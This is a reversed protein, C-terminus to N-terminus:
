EPKRGALVAFRYAKFYCDAREFGAERLWDLQAEVTAPRDHKMREQAASLADESVGAARVQALWTEHNFADAAADAGAVQELNVFMGGPALAEFAARCLRAKDADDLHHISLASVIADFPSDPLSAAYDAARTEVREAYPALRARGEDLMKESVDVMLVHAKPFATLVRESLVGTGAGLDLVRIAADADFPLLGVAVAYLDEFWPVLQRRVRDYNAASADFAAGVANAPKPM